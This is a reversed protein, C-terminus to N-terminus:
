LDGFSFRHRRRYSCDRRPLDFEMTASPSVKGFERNNVLVNTTETQGFEVRKFQSAERVLRFVPNYFQTNFDDDLSTTLRKLYNNVNATHARTGELLEIYKEELDDILMDLFKKHDLPRRSDQAISRAAHLQSFATVWETLARDTSEIAQVFESPRDNPSNRYVSGLENRFASWATLLQNLGSLSLNSVGAQDIQRLYSQEFALQREKVRELTRENSEWRSLLRIIRITANRLEAVSIFPVKDRDRMAGDAFRLSKVRNLNEQLGVRDSAPGGPTADADSRFPRIANETSALGALM